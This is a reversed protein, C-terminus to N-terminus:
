VLQLLAARFSALVERDPSWLSLYSLITEYCISVTGGNWAATAAVFDEYRDYRPLEIGADPHAAAFRDLLARHPAEDDLYCSWM